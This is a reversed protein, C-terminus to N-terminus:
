PAPAPLKATLDVDSLLFSTCTCLDSLLLTLLASIEPLRLLLASIEAQASVSLLVLVFVFIFVRAM